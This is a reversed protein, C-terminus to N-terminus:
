YTLPAKFTTVHLAEKLAPNCDLKSFQDKLWIWSAASHPDNEVLMKSLTARMHLVLTTLHYPYDFDNLAEEQVYRLAEEPSTNLREVVNKGLHQLAWHSAKTDCKGYDSEFCRKFLAHKPLDNENAFPTPNLIPELASIVNSQLWISYKVPTHSAAKNNLQAIAALLRGQPSVAPYISSLSEIFDSDIAGFGENLLKSLLRNKEVESLLDGAREQLGKPLQAKAATLNQLGNALIERFSTIGTVRTSNDHPFSQVARDIQRGRLSVIVKVALLAILAIGIRYTTDALSFSIDKQMRDLFYASSFHSFLVFSANLLQSGIRSKQRFSEWVRQAKDVTEFSNDTWQEDPQPIELTSMAEDYTQPRLGLCLFSIYNTM